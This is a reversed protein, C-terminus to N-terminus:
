QLFDARFYYNLLVIYLTTTQIYIVDLSLGLVLLLACDLMWVFFYGYKQVIIEFFCDCLSNIRSMADNIDITASEMSAIKGASSAMPIEIPV